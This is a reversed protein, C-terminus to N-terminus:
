RWPRGALKRWGSRCSRRSDYDSTGDGRNQPASRSSAARSEGEVKGAGEVITTNDKDIVVKSPAASIPQDQHKELKIGSIKRSPGQWRDAGLHGRADGQPSRRLGAGERRLHALHRAAQQVVLTPSAGEGEVRKASSSSRSARAPSRSSAAALMDKM